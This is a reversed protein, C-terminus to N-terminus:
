SAKNNEATEKKKKEEKKESEKVGKALQELVVKGPWM